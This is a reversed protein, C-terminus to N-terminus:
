INTLSQRSSSTGSTAITRLGSCTSNSLDIPATWTQSELKGDKMVSRMSARLAVDAVMAKSAVPPPLSTLWIRDAISAEGLVEARSYELYPDVTCLCTYM